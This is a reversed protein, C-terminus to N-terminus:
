APGAGEKSEVRPGRKGKRKAQVWSDPLCLHAERRQRGILSLMRGEALMMEVQQSKCTNEHLLPSQLYSEITQLSPPPPSACTSSSLLWGWLWPPTGKTNPPTCTLLVDSHDSTGHLDQGGTSVSVLLVKAQVFGQLFYDFEAELHLHHGPHQRVEVEERLDRRTDKPHEPFKSRGIAGTDAAAQLGKM